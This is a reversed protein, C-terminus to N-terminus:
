DRCDSHPQAPISTATSQARLWDRTGRPHIRQRALIAALLRYVRANVILSCHRGSVEYNNGQLNVCTRWDIVEDDRSFIASYGYHEACSSTLRGNLACSCDTTGCKSSAHTLANWLARWAGLASRFEAHLVVREVSVPSGLGIVHGVLAPFRAALSRALLGGLSHGIIVPPRGSERVIMEIRWKLRELKRSPCGINWDIGSLYPRYGIRALWRSMPVMLCDGALFGPILLVPQGQGQPVGFGYYVPNCLLASSQSM